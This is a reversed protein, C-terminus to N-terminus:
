SGEAEPSAENLASDIVGRWHAELNLHGLAVEMGALLSPDEEMKMEIAEVGLKDALATKLRNEQDENLPEASRVEVPQKQEEIIKRANGLEEASVDNLLAKVREIGMDALRSSDGGVVARAVHLITDRLEDTIKVMLDDREQKMVRRFRDVRARAQDETDKLLEKRHKDAQERAERLIQDRQAELEQERKKADALTKEAEARLEEARRLDAEMTDKREKLVRGVPKYLLYYLIVVFIVFSIIGGIYNWVNM